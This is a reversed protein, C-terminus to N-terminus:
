SPPLLKRTLFWLEDGIKLTESHKLGNDSLTKYFADVLRNLEAQLVNITPFAPNDKFKSEFDDQTVIIYNKRFAM